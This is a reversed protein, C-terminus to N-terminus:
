FPNNPLRKRKKKRQNDLSQNNPGARIVANGITGKVFGTNSELDSLNENSTSETSSSTEAEKPADATKESLLMKM